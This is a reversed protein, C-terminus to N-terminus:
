LREPPDDSLAFSDSNATNGNLLANLIMLSEIRIIWVVILM